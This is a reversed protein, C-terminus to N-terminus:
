QTNHKSSLMQMLKNKMRNSVILLDYEKATSAANLKYQKKNLTNQFMYKKIKEFLDISDDPTFLEGNYGSKIYEKLGGIDSGIVPVSCAMAEIGVLGLSEPLRSPFIFVDMKNYYNALYKQPVPGIVEVYDELQLENIMKKLQLEQSGGGIMLIKFNNINENLLLRSSKLLTDWGKGEDIRSVYGIIFQSDRKNVNSPKFLTTDIGGSPSVFIKDKNVQFKDHIVTKFYSSPVVILNAEKIIHALLKQIFRGIKNKINVDSGHANLVLPKQIYRKVLLLPMLSHYIYHVYILDYNDQKILTIVDKFFIIYKVIKSFKNKGRGSIVAKNSFDFGNERLQEEINKVFIGYVPNESSPYMNSILLVRKM